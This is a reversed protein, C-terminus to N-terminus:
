GRERAAAALEALLWDCWQVAARRSRVGGELTVRSAFAPHRPDRSAPDASVEGLEHEYAALRTAHQARAQHVLARAADPEFSRPRAWPQSMVMPPIEASASTVGVPRSTSSQARVAPM